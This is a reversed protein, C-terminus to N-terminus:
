RTPTVYADANHRKVIELASGAQPYTPYRGVHVLFLLQGRDTASQVNAPLNETQFRKAEADALAKQRYAGAQITWARCRVHRAALKGLESNGFFHIVRDFQLDADDWAGQRQLVCGLRYHSHDAPRQDEKVNALAQRYMSEALAMDNRDWALDGLANLAHVRIHDLKTRNLAEKLDSAAGPRDKLKYKALGRVFYAEDAGRSKGHDKLFTDLYRVSDEYEARHFAASGASLLEKGQPGLTGDCGASILMPWVPGVMLLRKWGHM